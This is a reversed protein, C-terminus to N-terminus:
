VAGLAEVVLMARSLGDTLTQLKEFFGISGKFPVKTIEIMEEPKFLEQLPEEKACRQKLCDIITEPIEVQNISAGFGSGSLGAPQDLRCVIVPSM